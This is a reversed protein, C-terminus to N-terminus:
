APLVEFVTASGMGGGACMSALGIGGGRRRLEFMTTIVMRAGTCAVPHGLSCGSGNVNTKEPDLGLVKCTAVPVSAFAENVEALDVDTVKMGARDLAKPIAYIPGMGTDRPPIAASAWSIIRAMPQLGHADAYDGDCVLLAAAGDNIGSANGATISFGEIEPHLPKLAGLKEMSTERRPHEDVDFKRMTGDRMPVEIPFIEESLRGEDTAKVANMHSRYAWADMEERSIDCRQATNWGVTISMDFAPADAEEPHSPSMWQGFEDPTDTGLKRKSVMPMSSSSEAGGAIVVKDMGARISAAAGQVAAMGSACHRNLAVGPVETLGLEIAAYRAIDGGGQLVEGMQMDDVDGPNIGSRKLAEGAAWKALDFASVDLLTGKRGTGIATRAAAVIVADAM